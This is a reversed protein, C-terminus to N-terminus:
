SSKVKRESVIAYLAQGFRLTMLAGGLPIAVYVWYSPIEMSPTVQGTQRISLTLITGWVALFASFAVSCLTAFFRLYRGRKEDMVELLATVALHEGERVAVSGGIFTIWIIAYRTYEEAWVIGSEFFYRLVVNIFLITAASILGLAILSEELRSLFRDLTHLM